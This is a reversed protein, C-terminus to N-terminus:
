GVRDNDGLNVAKLYADELSRPVEKFSIVGVNAAMLSRFIEPNQRLPDDIEFQLWDQGFSSIPTGFNTELLNDDISGNIKVEYLPNGLLHQKIDHPTGSLIKKGKRIILIQDALQEAENLNHTCIIVTRENSKLTRISERVMYASEPDMASTPEDLLLVPPDHLLARALALKQRM